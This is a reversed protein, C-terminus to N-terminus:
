VTPNPAMRTWAIAKKRSINHRRRGTDFIKGEAALESFRPRVSYKDEGLIVAAEDPTIGLDDAPVADFCRQKLDRARDSVAAAADASTQRGKWGPREPYTADPM